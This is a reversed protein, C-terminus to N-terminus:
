QFIPIFQFQSKILVCVSPMAINQHHRRQYTVPYPFAQAHSQSGCFFGCDDTQNTNLPENLNILPTKITSNITTSTSISSKEYQNHIMRDLSSCTIPTKADTSQPIIVSWREASAKVPSAQRPGHTQSPPTFLLYSQKPSTSSVSPPTHVAILDQLHAAVQRHPTSTTM